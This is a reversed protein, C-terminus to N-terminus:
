HCQSMGQSKSIDILQQKQDLFLSFLGCKDPSVLPKRLMRGMPIMALAKYLSLISAPLYALCEDTDNPQVFQLEDVLLKGCEIFLVNEVHPSGEFRNVSM